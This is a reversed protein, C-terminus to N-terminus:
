CSRACDSGRASAPSAFKRDTAPNLEAAIRRAIDVVGTEVLGDLMLVDAPDAQESATLLLWVAENMTMWYRTMREDTITLSEGAALQNTFTEIVSGRTGLVNVYRVITYQRNHTLAAQQTAVEAIRKTAGYLSPPNVAKDSSPYVFHEVDFEVCLDLLVRTAQINVSVTEEPFLQGFPVHKHAALHFVHTPELRKM